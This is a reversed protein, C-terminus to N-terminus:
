ENPTAINIDIGRDEKTLLGSFPIVNGNQDGCVLTYAFAKGSFIKRNGQIQITKVSAGPPVEKAETYTHSYTKMEGDEFYIASFSVLYFIEAGTNGVVLEGGELSQKLAVINLDGAEKRMDYWQLGFYVAVALAALAFGYLWGPIGAPRAGVAPLPPPAQPTITPAPTNPTKDPSPLLDARVVTNKLSQYAAEVEAKNREYIPKMHSPANAIQLNIETVKAKYAITIESETAAAHIGLTECATTKDMSYKNENQEFIGPEFFAFILM